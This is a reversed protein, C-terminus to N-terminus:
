AQLDVDSLAFGMGALRRRLKKLLPRFEHPRIISGFQPPNGWPMDIVYHRVRELNARAALEGALRFGCLPM